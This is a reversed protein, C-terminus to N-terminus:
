VGLGGPVSLAWRSEFECVELDCGSCFGLSPGRGAQVGSADVDYVKTVPCWVGIQAGPIHETNM